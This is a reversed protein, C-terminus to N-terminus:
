RLTSAYSLQCLLPSKIGLNLTRNGARAGVHIHQNPQLVVFSSRSITTLTQASPKCRSPNISSVGASSPSSRPQASTCLPRPLSVQHASPSRPPSPNPRSDAFSAHRAPASHPQPTPPDPYDTADARANGAGSAPRPSTPRRDSDPVHRPSQGPEAGTADHSSSATRPVGISSQCSSTTPPKKSASPVLALAKVPM